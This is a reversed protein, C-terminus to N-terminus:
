WTGLPIGPILNSWIPERTVVVSNGSHNSYVLFVGLLKCSIENLMVAVRLLAVSM